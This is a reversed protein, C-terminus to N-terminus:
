KYLFQRPRFFEQPPNGEDGGWLYTVTHFNSKMNKRCSKKINNLPLYTLNLILLNSNKKKNFSKHIINNAFIVM